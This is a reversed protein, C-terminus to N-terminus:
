GDPRGRMKGVVFNQCHASNVIVSTAVVVAAAVALVVVVAVFSNEPLSSNQICPVVTIRYSLLFALLLLM